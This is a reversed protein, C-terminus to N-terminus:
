DTPMPPKSHNLNQVQLRRKLFKQSSRSSSSSLSWSVLAHSPSTSSNFTRLITRTQARSSSSAPSSPVSSPLLATGHSVSNFDPLPLPLIASSRPMLIPLQRLLQSVVPSLSLASVSAVLRHVPMNLQPFTRLLGSLEAQLNAM